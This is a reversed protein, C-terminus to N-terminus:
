ELLSLEYAPQEPSSRLDNNREETVCEYSGFSASVFSECLAPYGQIYLNLISGDYGIVRFAEFFTGASTVRRIPRFFVKKAAEPSEFGRMDFAM